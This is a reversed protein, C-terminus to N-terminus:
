RQLVGFYNILCPRVEMLVNPHGGLSRCIKHETLKFLIAKDVLHLARM